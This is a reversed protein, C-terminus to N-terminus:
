NNHGHTSLIRYCLNEISSVLILIKMIDGKIIDQQHQYILLESRISTFLTPTCEPTKTFITAFNSIELAFHYGFFAVDLCDLLIISILNEVRSYELQYGSEYQTTKPLELWGDFTGCSKWFLTEEPSWFYMSLVVKCM